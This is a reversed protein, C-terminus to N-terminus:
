YKKKTVTNITEPLGTWRKKGKSPRKQIMALRM